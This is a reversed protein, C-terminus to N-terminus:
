CDEQKMLKNVILILAVGNNQAEAIIADGEQMIQRYQFLKQEDQQRMLDLEDEIQAKRKPDSKEEKRLQELEWQLSSRLNERMEREQVIQMEADDNETAHGLNKISRLEAYNQHEYQM